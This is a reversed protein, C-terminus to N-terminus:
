PLTIEPKKGGAAPISFSVTTGVAERSEIMLGHEKGYYLLIRQNMNWLGFCRSPAHPSKLTERIQGLTKEPMGAGDDRVSVALDGSCMRASIWIQGSQSPKRNIGHLISNEVLPQLLIKLIPFALTQEEIEYHVSVSDEFRMQMISVYIKVHELEDAFPILQNGKSLSLRFFKGLLQSMRAIRRDGQALAMWNISDLCNYLFHPNIQEQLVRFDAEKKQQQIRNNEAISSRITELFRNIMFEIETIEDDYQVSLLDESDIKIRGVKEIIRRIRGSLSKSIVGALLAAILLGIVCFVFIEVIPTNMQSKLYANPLRGALIFQNDLRCVAYTGGEELFTEIKEGDSVRDIYDAPIAEGGEGASYAAQGMTDMLMTTDLSFSSVSNLIKLVSERELEQELVGLIEGTQINAYVAQFCSLRDEEPMYVWFPAGKAILMRAYWSSKSISELPFFSTKERTYIAETNLYYRIHRVAKNMNYRATVDSISFYDDIEDSLSYEEQSLNQFVRLLETSNLIYKGNDEVSSFMSNLNISAQTCFESFQRRSDRQIVQMYRFFFFSASGIVVTMVVFFVSVLIKNRVSAREYKKRLRHYLRIKKM